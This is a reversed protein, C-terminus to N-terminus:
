PHFIDHVLKTVIVDVDVGKVRMHVRIGRLLFEPHSERLRALEAVEVADDHGNAM